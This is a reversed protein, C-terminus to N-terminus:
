GVKQMPPAEWKAAIVDQHPQYLRMFLNFPGEPAPLWNSEKEEGPSDHQLYFTLGGDSDRALGKSRDGLSYRDIPNPVLNYSHYLLRHLRLV